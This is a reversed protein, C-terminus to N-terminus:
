AVLGRRALEETARDVQDDAIQGALYGAIPLGNGCGIDLIAAGPALGAILKDVWAQEWMEGGRAEAWAAANDEYLGTIREHPLLADGRRTAGAPAPTLM